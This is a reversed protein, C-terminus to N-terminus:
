RKRPFKMKKLTYEQDENQWPQHLKEEITEPLIETEIKNIILDEINSNNLDTKQFDPLM